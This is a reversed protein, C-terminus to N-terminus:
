STVQTQEAGEKRRQMRREWKLHAKNAKEAAHLAKKLQEKIAREEAQAAKRQEEQRRRNEHHAKCVDAWKRSPRSAREANDAAIMRELKTRFDSINQQSSVEAPLSIEKSHTKLWGEWEEMPFDADSYYCGHKIWPKGLEDFWVSGGNYRVFFILAGCQRCKTPHCFNEQVYIGERSKKQVPKTPKGRHGEGGWGCRCNPSHHKANCL